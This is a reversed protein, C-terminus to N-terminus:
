DASPLVNDDLPGQDGADFVDYDAEEGLTAHEPMYPVIHLATVTGDAAEDVEVTLNEQELYQFFTDWEVTTSDVPIAHNPVLTLTELHEVPVYGERELLAQAEEKNPLTRYTHM